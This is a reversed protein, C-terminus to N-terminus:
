EFTQKTQLTFFSSTIMMLWWPRYFGCYNQKCSQLRFAYVSGAWHGASYLHLVFQLCIGLPLVPTMSPTVCLLSFSCICDFLSVRDELVSQQFHNLKNIMWEQTNSATCSHIKAPYHQVETVVCIATHIEQPPLWLSSQTSAEQWLSYLDYNRETDLRVSRATTGSPGSHELLRCSHRSRHWGAPRPSWTRTDGRRSRSARSRSSWACSGGGSRGSRWPGGGASESWGREWTLVEAEGACLQLEGSGGTIQSESKMRGWVMSWSFHGGRGWM